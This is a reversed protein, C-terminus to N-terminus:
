VVSKRDGEVRLIGDVGQNNEARLGPNGVDFTGAAEHVANSALEEGCRRCANDRIPSASM